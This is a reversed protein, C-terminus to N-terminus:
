TPRFSNQRPQVEPSQIFKNLRLALHTNTTQFEHPMKTRKFDSSSMYPDNFAWDNENM